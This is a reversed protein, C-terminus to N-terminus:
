LWLSPRKESSPPPPSLLYPFLFFFFFFFSLVTIVPLITIEAHPLDSRQCPLFLVSSIYTISCRDDSRKKRYWCQYRSEKRGARGEEELAGLIRVRSTAHAIHVTYGPTAPIQWWPHDPSHLTSPFRRPCFFPQFDNYRPPRPPKQCCEAGVVLIHNVTTTLQYPPPPRTGDCPELRM